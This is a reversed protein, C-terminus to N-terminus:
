ALRRLPRRRNVVSVALIALSLIVAALSVGAGRRILEPDYRVVVSSAGAPVWVAKFHVNAREVITERGDAEARWGPFWADSILLYGGGSGSARQYALQEPTGPRQVFTSPTGPAEEGPPNSDPSLIVTERRAVAPDTAMARLAADDDLVLARRALPVATEVNDQFVRLLPFEKRQMGPQLLMPQQAGDETLMTAARLWWTGPGEWHWRLGTVPAGDSTAFRVASDSRGNRPLGATPQAASLPGPALEEFLESGMRLPFEEQSGDALLMTMTGRQLPDGAASSVSGLLAIARANTPSPLRITVEEGPQFSRATAVDFHIGDLTVDVADGAVITRIDLLRRLREDPVQILRTRLVGDTRLEGRAVLLSAVDLFRALPLIGGDYGDVTSLGHRLPVNPSMVEDLKLASSFAFSTGTDLGPYRIQLEDNDDNVYETRAISLLRGNAANDKLYATVPRIEDWAAAPVAHRIPADLAAFRLDVLVVAALIGAMARNPFRLALLCLVSAGAIALIWLLAIRGPVEAISPIAFWVGVGLAAAVIAMRAEDPRRRNRSLVWDMGLSALACAGFSYIFLWRAPVRFLNLGPVHEFLLPYLPNAAANALFIGVFALLAACATERGRAFLLALAALTLAVGGVYGVYESFLGYWYGPLLSRVLLPPILSFSVGEQYSLGGARISLGSLESTPLLQIAALGFGLPVVMAGVVIATAARGGLGRGILTMASARTSVHSGVTRDTTRGRSAGALVRWGVVVGTACLTMYTEQAHGALLQVGLALAGAVAWTARKRVIAQDTCLVIAPMWASASLQNIHGIQWTLFGGFAFACAGVVAPITAVAFTARFCLYAFLAAMFIHLMVSLSYAYPVPFVYFLVSPPYLVATQPNAFFPAGMFTDPNWLPFRGFQIATAAYQRLPYFYTWTDYDALIRTPLAIEWCFLLSLLAFLAPVVVAPRSWSLKLRGGLHGATVAGKKL